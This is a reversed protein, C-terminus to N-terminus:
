VHHSPNRLGTSANDPLFQPLGFHQFLHPDLFLTVTSISEGELTLVLISHANWRKDAASFEYIAFGAAWQRIDTGLPPRM